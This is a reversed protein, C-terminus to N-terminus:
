ASKIEPVAQCADASGHQMIMNIVKQMRGTACAAARPDMGLMAHQLMTDNSIQACFCRLFEAKPGRVNLLV